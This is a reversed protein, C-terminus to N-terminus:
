CRLKAENCEMLSKTIMVSIHRHNVETSSMLGLMEEIKAKFARVKEEDIDIFEIELRLAELRCTPVLLITNQHQKLDNASNRFKGKNYHHRPPQM